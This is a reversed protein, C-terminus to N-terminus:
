LRYAYQLKVLLQNSDFAFRDNLNRLMNHNFVVFLDGLPNFTWRLRTNTGLNRSENDYQLFSSVQLDASVNVQVRGSYLRQVFDGVPLRASNREWGLEATLFASPKMRVTLALSHLHGGYFSGTSWTAEGNFRRKAALAGQVTYRTWRYSGAPVVVSTTDSSFLEFDETPRDGQPEIDFEFRDGSELQWDLPKFSLIYSEWRGHLDSIVAPNFEFFMQRVLPWAPRPRFGAEVQWLQVGTRPVFSLSPNFREGIRKYRLSVDWLDNPYDIMGGFANDSGIDDRHNHLGWVGMILNKDGKFESTQFTFDAGTMWSGAIGLPDGFTAILGASSESLVNQKVRFAGMTADTPLSDVGRTRVALAGVNTNGMRGNLKGGVTIPIQLQDEAEGQLGIRRSHFAILDEDNGVGFEFIDAGELFFTRKEPFLLDFRTLNTQRADVETEGFDTNVTLSAIMNPGLKKTADLSGQTKYVREAGPAPRNANGVIGPRISLGLGLNFAPLDTLHGSHSTQYIEYDRNAGAWRSVELLRQVRRQVNFGWGTLDQKFSLTKIPIRIEVSWGRADRATAAEWIGDWDTNVDEGYASVLGDFRAGNPNVAFVYGTRGDEFPDLVLMVHDELELDFDRTKAFAVIGAPNSDRCLIGFILESPNALVKVITQGAPRAGETPEITVLDVISDASSWAPEDLRGDLTVESEFTSARLTTLAAAAPAGEAAGVDFTASTVPGLGPAKVTLSYTGPKDIRLDGFAAVGAVATVTTTGTLEAEEDGTGDTIEVTVNATFSELTQGTADRVTIAVTPQIPAGAATHSPQVTFEARAAGAGSGGGPAATVVSTAVAVPAAAAAPATVAFPASTVEGVGEVTATLKYEAAASDISLASFIAVGAVATVKTTGSLEADENGSGDSIELTVARAFTTVTQGAADVVSVQVAPTITAGAVTASPQVTFVLHLSDLPVAPRSVLVTSFLLITSLM